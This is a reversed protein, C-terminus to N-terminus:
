ATFLSKCGDIVGIASTWCPVSAVCVRWGLTLQVKGGIAQNELLPHSGQVLEDCRQTTSISWHLV